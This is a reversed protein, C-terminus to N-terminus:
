EPATAMSYTAASDPRALSRIEPTMGPKIVPM